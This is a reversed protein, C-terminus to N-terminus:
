QPRVFAKTASQGRLAPAVSADSKGTVTVSVKTPDTTEDVATITFDGLDASAGTLETTYDINAPLVGQLVQQAYYINIRAAAEALAGDLARTTAETQLSFFKPVAVAALIALIVLVAIIEILTFGEESRAKNRMRTFM